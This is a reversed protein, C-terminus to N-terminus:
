DEKIPCTIKLESTAPKFWRLNYLIGETAEGEETKERTHEEGPKHCIPCLMTTSRPKPKPILLTRRKAKVPKLSRNMFYNVARRITKYTM